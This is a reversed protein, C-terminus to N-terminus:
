SKKKRIIGLSSKCTNILRCSKKYPFNEKHDKLTIFAKSSFNKKIKGKIKNKSIIAEAETNNNNVIYSTAKKYKSTITEFLLKKYNSVDM